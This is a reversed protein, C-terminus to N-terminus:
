SAIAIARANLFQRLNSVINGIESLRNYIITVNVDDSTPDMVYQNLELDIAPSPDLNNNLTVEVTDGPKVRLTPGVSAGNYGPATRVGTESWQIGDLSDLLSINLTVKLFGNSSVVEPPQLLVSDYFISSSHSFISLCVM